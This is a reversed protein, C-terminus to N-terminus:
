HDWHTLESVAHTAEVLAVEDDLYALALPATRM